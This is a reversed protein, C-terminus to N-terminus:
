KHMLTLIGTVVFVVLSIILGINTLLIKTKM